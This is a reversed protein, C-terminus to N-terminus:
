FHGVGRGQPVRGEGQLPPHFDSRGPRKEPASGAGMYFLTLPHSLRTAKKIRRKTWIRAGLSV